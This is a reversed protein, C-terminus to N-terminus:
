VSLFIIVIAVFIKPSLNLLWAIYLSTYFMFFSALMTSAFIFNAVTFFATKKKGFVCLLSIFLFNLLFLPLSLSTCFIILKIIDLDYILHSQFHFVILFGPAIVSLFSAIAFLVHSPKIKKIEDLSITM